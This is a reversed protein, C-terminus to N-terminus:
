LDGGVALVAQVGEVTKAVELRLTAEDSMAIRLGGGYSEHADSLTFSEWRPAVASLEYLALASLSHLITWRYEIRTLALQRDRFRGTPYGAFRSDGESQALRYFPLATNTDGSPDVGAYVGRVAIVRRKAFVPVYARGEVRWQYYDPDSSRLGSARRVDFRGHLGRSPDREDDLAALDATVGYLLEQTNQNQFPVSTSAFVYELLPQGNYGRDPSM